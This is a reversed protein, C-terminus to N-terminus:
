TKIKPIKTTYGHPYNFGSFILRGSLSEQRLLSSSRRLLAIIAQGWQVRSSIFARPRKPAHPHEALLVQESLLDLFV